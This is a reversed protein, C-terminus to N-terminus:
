EVIRLEKANKLEIQSRVREKGKYKYTRRRVVGEVLVEKDKYTDLDPFKAIHQEFIVVTLPNNPFREDLDLFTPRGKSNKASKIGVIRARVLVKSGTRRAAETATVVEDTNPQSIQQHQAVTLQAMSPCTTYMLLFFLVIIRSM